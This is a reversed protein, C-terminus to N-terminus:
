GVDTLFNNWKPLQPLSSWTGSGGSIGGCIKINNHKCLICWKIKIPERNKPMWGMFFHGCARSRTKTESLYSANSHINMIMDSQSIDGECRFQKCPLGATSHLTGYNKEMAKTQKVAISSLTMLVTMNVAHAYYLISGVIQQIQKIGGADLVPTADPMLSSQADLGFKKPEPSYPCNQIKEPLLHKYEQLKKKIYGPMSIDVTRGIHDWEFTIGCYLSGTWDETLIKYTSKMSEILHDAHEKGM